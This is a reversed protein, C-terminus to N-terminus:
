LIKNNETLGCCSDAMPIRIDVGKLSLAWPCSMFPYSGFPDLITSLIVGVVGQAETCM